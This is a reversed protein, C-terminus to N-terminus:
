RAAIATGPAAHGVEHRRAVAREGGSRDRELHADARDHEQHEAPHEAHPGGEQDRGAGHERDGDGEGSPSRSGAADLDRPRRPRRESRESSAAHDATRPATGPMRAM